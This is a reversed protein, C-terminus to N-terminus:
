AIQFSFYFLISIIVNKSLASIKGQPFSLPPPLISSPSSVPPPVTM